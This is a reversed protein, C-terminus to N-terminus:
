KLRDGIFTVVALSGIAIILGVVAYIIAERGQKVRSPSGAATVILLGGAIIFIISLGGILYFLVSIVNQLAVGINGTSNPLGSQGQLSIDDLHLRPLNSFFPHM